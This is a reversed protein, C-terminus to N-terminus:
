GYCVEKKPPSLLRDYDDLRHQATQINTVQKKPLFRSQIQQLSPLRNKKLDEILQWALEGECDYDYAFRLVGVIWKCADRSPLHQDVYAWLQRYEESPLLDDRLQSYRFAQPKASLSVIIHRYDIRRARTKGSGPYIRPLTVLRQHGLHCDLRDHYLHVRLREGVLRSPVSYVVRRVEITSSRTVLVSVEKFDVFQHQPLQQLQQQEQMLRQRCRRNLREVVQDIFDQYAAVSAFDTSQRLKLNQSLRRKLSGHAAEIAGNEHSVGTNNRTPTMKYHQCLADYDDTWVNIHNNYAASLSDTRHELPSGGLTRLARQLGDALASYSEGGQIVKVSRWGSYRLRFQYLLHKFPEGNITISTNPHSFDSLSMQGPVAQQLFMVEKEPGSTALWHKVRRQLTRLYGNGYRGPHHDELYELLTIGTLSADQHLLPVLESEWVAELPDQRTRWHRENVSVHQGKEIRRGSRVSIGSKAAAAEQSLGRHRSQMYLDEQRRTIRTGPM